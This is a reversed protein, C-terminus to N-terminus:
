HSAPIPGTGADWVRATGDWSATVIRSGDPSFAVYAIHTVDYAEIDARAVRRDSSDWVRATKDDSATVIRLGDRISPLQISEGKM